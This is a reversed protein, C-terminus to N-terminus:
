INHRKNLKAAIMCAARQQFQVAYDIDNCDNIRENMTMADSIQFSYYTVGCGDCQADAQTGETSVESITCGCFPCPKIVPQIVHGKKTALFEMIEFYNAIVDGDPSVVIFNENDSQGFHSLRQIDLGMDDGYKAHRSELEDVNTEDCLGDNYDCPYDLEEGVIVEKDSSQFSDDLFAASKNHKIDAIMQASSKHIGRNTYKEGDYVWETSTLLSYFCVNEGISFYFGTGIKKHIM